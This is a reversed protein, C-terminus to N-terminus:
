TLCQNYVTSHCICTGSFCSINIHRMHCLKRCCFKLYRSILNRNSRGSYYTYPKRHLRDRM